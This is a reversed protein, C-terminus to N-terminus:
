MARQQNYYVKQQELEKTLISYIKKGLIDKDISIGVGKVFVSKPIQNLFTRYHAFWENSGAEFGREQTIKRGYARVLYELVDNLTSAIGAPTNSKDYMSDIAKLVAVFGTNYPDMIPGTIGDAHWNMTDVLAKGNTTFFMQSMLGLKQKDRSAGFPPLPEVIEETLAALCYSADQNDVNTYKGALVKAYGKSFVVGSNPRKFEEIEFGHGVCKDKVRATAALEFLPEIIDQAEPNKRMGLLIVNDDKSYNVENEYLEDLTKPFIIGYMEVTRMNRYYNGLCTDKMNSLLIREFEYITSVYRKPIIPHIEERYAATHNDVKTHKQKEKEKVKLGLGKRIVRLFHEKLKIISMKYDTFELSM